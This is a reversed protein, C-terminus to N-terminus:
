HPKVMTNNFWNLVLVLPIAGAMLIVFLKVPDPKKMPNGEPDSRKAPVM